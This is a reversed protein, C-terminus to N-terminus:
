LSLECVLGPLRSVQLIRFPSDVVSCYEGVAAVKMKGDEEAEVAGQQSGTEIRTEQLLVGSETRLPQSESNYGNEQHLSEADADPGKAKGRRWAVAAKLRDFRSM